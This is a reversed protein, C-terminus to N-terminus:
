NNTTTDSLIVNPAHLSNKVSNPPLSQAESITPMINVNVASNRDPNQGIRKFKIGEETTGEEINYGDNMLM